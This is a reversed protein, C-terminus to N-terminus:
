LLHYAKFNGQFRINKCNSIRVACHLNNILNIKLINILILKLPLTTVTDSTRDHYQIEAPARLAWLYKRLLGDSSHQIM